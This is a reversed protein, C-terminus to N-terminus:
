GGPFGASTHVTGSGMSPVWLMHPHWTADAAATSSAHPDPRARDEVRPLCLSSLAGGKAHKAVAPEKHLRRPPGPHHHRRSIDPARAVPTCAVDAPLNWVSRLGLLDGGHQPWVRRVGRLLQRLNQVRSRNPIVHSALPYPCRTCEGQGRNAAYTGPECEVCAGTGEASATGPPCPGGCASSSQNKPDTSGRLGAACPFPFDQEVPLLPLQYLSKGLLSPDGGWGATPDWNCPQVRTPKQCFWSDAVTALCAAPKEPESHRRCAEQKQGSSPEIADDSETLTCDGRHKLCATQRCVGRENCAQSQKCWDVNDSCSPYSCAERYVECRANPLWRGAPAPLAYAVEGALLFISSGEEKAFCGSILTGDSLTTRGGQSYLGGGSETAMCNSITSRALSASGSEVYM